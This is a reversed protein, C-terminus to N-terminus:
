RIRLPIRRKQRRDSFVRGCPLLRPLGTFIGGDFEGCRFPMKSGGFGTEGTKLFELPFSLPLKRVGDSEFFVDGLGIFRNGFGLALV